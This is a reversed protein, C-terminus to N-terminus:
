VEPNSHSVKCVPFDSRNNFIPSFDLGAFRQSPLYLWRSSTRRHLKELWLFASDSLSPSPLLSFYVTRSHYTMFSTSLVQVGRFQLMPSNHHSFHFRFPIALSTSFQISKLMTFFSISHHHLLLAFQQSFFKITIICSSFQHLSQARFDQPQSFSHQIHSPSLFTWFTKERSKTSIELYLKWVM